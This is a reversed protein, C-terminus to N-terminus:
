DQNQNAKQAKETKLHQQARRRRRFWGALQNSAAEGAVGAIVEM